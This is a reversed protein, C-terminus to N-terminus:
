ISTPTYRPASSVAPRPAQRLLVVGAWAFWVIFGLGFVSGAEHLGPITTSIGALGILLGLYNLLKPLEGAQLAAASVLLIWMGGPLEVAGGLGAEVASLVRWVTVAQTPDTQYLTSILRLDNLILMGSMLVTACWILGFAAAVLSLVPTGIKLREYLALVLVVLCLGNIIYILWHWIHMLLHNEVLFAVKQSSELEQMPLIFTLAIAFGIVYTLADVLAAAGGMQQLKNM